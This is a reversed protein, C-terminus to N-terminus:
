NNFLELVENISLTMTSLYLPNGNQIGNDYIEFKVKDELYEIDSVYVHSHLKEKIFCNLKEKIEKTISPASKLFSKIYESM